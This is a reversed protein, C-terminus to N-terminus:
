FFKPAIIFIFVVAERVPVPIDTNGSGEQLEPSHYDKRGFKAVFSIQV